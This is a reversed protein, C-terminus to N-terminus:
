PEAAAIEAKYGCSSGVEGITHSGAATQQYAESYDVVAQHLAMQWAFGERVRSGFVDTAHLARVADEESVLSSAAMQYIVRQQVSRVREANAGVPARRPAAIMAALFSAQFLNVRSPEVGFYHAGAARVGWIHNGWEIVNLYLELIRRKSLSAELRHAIVLERLKRSITREEGLYLNRALQQSITSGGPSSQRTLYRGLARFTAGPEVGNHIFFRRDEAKVVACILLPSISDFPTWRRESPAFATRDAVPGRNRMYSTSSPSRRALAAPDPLGHWAKALIGAAILCAAYLLAVARSRLRHRMIDIM